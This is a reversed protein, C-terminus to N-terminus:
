PGPTLPQPTRSGGQGATYCRVRLAVGVQTFTLVADCLSLAPVKPLDCYHGGHGQAHSALGGLFCCPGEMHGCLGSRAGMPSEPGGQIM